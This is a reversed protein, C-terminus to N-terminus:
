RYRKHSKVWHRALQTLARNPPLDKYPADILTQGAESLFSNEDSTQSLFNLWDDGHIGAVQRRPYAVLATRRLIEAVKASTIDPDALESLAHRRYANERRRRVFLVSVLVVLGLLIVALALWGWTQPFMSVPAPEPAPELMNLLDVLSKGTTDISM